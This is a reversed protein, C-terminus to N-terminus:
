EYGPYRTLYNLMSSTLFSLFSRKTGPIGRSLNDGYDESDNRNLHLRIFIILGVSGLKKYINEIGNIPIKDLLNDDEFSSLLKRWSPHWSFTAALGVIKEL